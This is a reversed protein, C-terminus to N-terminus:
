SRGLPRLGWGGGEMALPMSGGMGGGPLPRLLPLLMCWRGGTLLLPWLPGRGGMDEAESEGMHPGPMICLLLRPPPGGEPGMPPGRGGMLETIAEEDEDEGDAAVEDGSGGIFEDEPGGRGDMTDYLIM